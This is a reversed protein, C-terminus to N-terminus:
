RTVDVLTGRSFDYLGYNGESDKAIYPTIAFITDIDTDPNLLYMNSEKIANGVYKLNYPEFDEQTDKEASPDYYMDTLECIKKYSIPVYGSPLYQSVSASIYKKM